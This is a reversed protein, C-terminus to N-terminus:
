AENERDWTARIVVHGNGASDCRRCFNHGNIRAKGQECWRCMVSEPDGFAEPPRAM